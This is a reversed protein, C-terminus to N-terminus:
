QSKKLVVLAHDPGFSPLGTYNKEKLVYAVFTKAFKFLSKSLYIKGNYTNHYLQLNFLKLGKLFFQSPFIVHEPFNFYWWNRKVIRATKSQPNGTLLILHDNKDLLSHVNRFSSDPNYLNQHLDNRFDLMILLRLQSIDDLLFQMLSSQFDM